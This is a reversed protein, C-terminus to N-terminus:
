FGFTLQDKALGGGDQSPKESASSVAEQSSSAVPSSPTEVPAFVPAVQAGNAVSSLWEDLAVVKVGAKRAKELKSSGGSVDVAVLVALGSAVSDVPEYGADRALDEYHGRKEPMKGTFCITPHLGSAAGKTQIVKVCGLLADLEEQGAKLASEIASAREPGIGDCVKLTEVDMKRLEELTHSQLISKAINPGVGKINLSALLMFDPAERAAQIEKYLNSASKEKFGDLQLLKATSLDFIDKLTRVGLSSMMKRITPEGLREIGISRVAALLNQLRTEQCDPNLCRLEPLDRVLPAKCCPCSEILCPKREEGPESSHVYPIVDGAREVEVIDGIHLDKDLINQLNHLSAHKITIGGIDVPELVAVPTLCNKGFSWEVDLLKTKRRVGSFKFAIQGRPHHATNGLSESYASDSLKVVIGDMPYPLAEIEQVISPWDERLRSLPLEWSRLEYDVLTLFAGQALMADIEKLGMIGAVANRSNKYLRGNRNLVHSYVTKFDDERIVIEGRAPRKWSSLPVKGEVGKTELFIMSVKDSINEGIEGDGRTALVTGSWFASIGDYKPQIILKEDANRCNKTAWEYLSAEKLPPPPPDFYYAKDLSLMPKAHRVKGSGAVLPANVQSLLPHSPNLQELRRVLLDYDVDSIEPEGDVWYKRNHLEVLSAVAAEDLSALAAQDLPKLEPM